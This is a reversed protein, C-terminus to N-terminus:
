VRGRSLGEVTQAGVVLVNGLVHVEELSTQLVELLILGMRCERERFDVPKAGLNTQVYRSFPSLSSFGFM